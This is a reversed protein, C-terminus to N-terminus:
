STAKSRLPKVKKRPFDDIRVWFLERDQRGTRLFFRLAREAAEYPVFLEPPWLEQGQGGLEVHVAPDSLAQRSTLFDSRSEPTEFCQVEYGHGPYWSLSIRPTQGTGDQGLPADPSIIVGEWTPRGQMALLTHETESWHIPASGAGAVTTYKFRHM